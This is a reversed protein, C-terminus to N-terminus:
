KIKTSAKKYRSNVKSILEAEIYKQQEFDLGLYEFVVMDIKKHVEKEIEVNANDAYLGSFSEFTNRIEENVEFNLYIGFKKLDIAEAKLMGGGLNKRGSIERILWCLTSNLFYWLRIVDDKNAEKEPIYVEVGSASYGNCNNYSCYHRAGIGRPMILVPQKKNTKNDDFAEYGDTNLCELQHEDIASKKIIFYKSNNWHYFGTDENTMFPFYQNEDLKLECILEIPVWNNKTLNLGQGIKYQRNNVEDIKKGKTNLKEIINLTKNECNLIMGWKLDRLINDDHNIVKMEVSRKDINQNINLSLSYNSLNEHCKIFVLPKICGINGEFVTIITNINANEFYVYESDIIGLINTTKMLYDQFNSGFETDLWSNQTIFTNIGNQKIISLSLEFFYILLDSGRTIFKSDANYKNKIKLQLMDKLNESFNPHRSELYPPNGIVVDFGGKEKFVRAFELQWLFFPPSPQNKVENYKEVIAPNIGEGLNLLVINDIISRISRKIQEKESHNKEYFLRDQAEFLRSLLLDYQNQGVSIQYDRNGFLDSENILKAGDLEDILSNGCRINCDLNPLPRPNRTVAHMGDDVANEDTEQDVVLSLWLRLKTIDVASPDIDVAFISNKITHYKLNLPHRDIEYLMRSKFKDNIIMVMYETINKRARVIESLMGLPFAGSGVAPDAVRINALADDVDKLRNINNKIDLIETSIFLELDGNRANVNTDQDKMFEGYVIFDKIADYSIGTENSIHNALSEQCMYHVIERPTYFAGKSKRDKVDLLNEFIKGLMEPDVAVEKELPEDENMTFNYRDFIDLIGDADEKGKLDINSFMENPIDFDNHNWDYNDLPEFLGGNLFPVKCKLKSYYGIDGRQENLAEYFLPELYDDFFNLNKKQCNEYMKRLFDRPGTGWSQGKLAAALVEQKSVEYEEITKGSIRTYQDEGTQRYVAPIIEKTIKGKFYLADNYQKQTLTEPFANVGLWGKKQIFYLFALQGMLKKSFQESTFNLREAEHMFDENSELHEKLEIYKKRYNEFFAKTVKEVSFAEEIQDLTPNVHDDMFIPYLREEATHCPELEGVLYSYRKAPTLKETIKGKAFEYDLRIFSLRWKGEGKTYFAAIAGDIGAADMLKKVFNRQMSRANEVTKHSKLEVAFVAIKARDEGSFNAIHYYGEIHYSFESWKKSDNVFKDPRVIDLNNFFETTFKTFQSIEFPKELTDKFFQKRADM